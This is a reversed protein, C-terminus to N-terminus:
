CVADLMTCKQIIFTKKHIHSNKTVPPLKLKDSVKEICKWNKLGNFSSFNEWDVLGASLIREDMLFFFWFAKCLYLFYGYFRIVMVIEM